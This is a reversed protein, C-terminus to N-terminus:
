KQAEILYRRAAIVAAGAIGVVIPVLADAVGLKSVNDPITLWAAAVTIATTVLDFLFAKLVLVNIM